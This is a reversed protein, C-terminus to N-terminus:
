VKISIIRMCNQNENQKALGLETMKETCSIVSLHNNNQCQTCILTVKSLRYLMESWRTSQNLKLIHSFRQLILVTGSKPWTAITLGLAIKHYKLHGWGRLFGISVMLHKIIFIYFMQSHCMYLTLWDSQSINLIYIAQIISHTGTYSKSCM